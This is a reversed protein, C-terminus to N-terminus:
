ESLFSKISGYFDKSDKSNINGTIYLSKIQKNLVINAVKRYEILLDNILSSKIITLDLLQHNYSRVTLDTTENLINMLHIYLYKIYM